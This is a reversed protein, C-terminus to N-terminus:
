NSIKERSKQRFIDKPSAPNGKKKLFFSVNTVNETFGANLFLMFIVLEAHKKKKIITITKLENNTEHGTVKIKNM